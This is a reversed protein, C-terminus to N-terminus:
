LPGFVTSSGKSSPLMWPTLDRFDGGQGVKDPVDTGSIWASFEACSFLSPPQSNRCTGYLRLINEASMLSM